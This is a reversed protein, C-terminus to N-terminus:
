DPDKRRYFLHNEELIFEVQVLWGFGLFEDGGSDANRLVFASRLIDCPRRDSQQLVVPIDFREIGQAFFIMNAFKM